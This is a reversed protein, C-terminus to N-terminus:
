VKLCDKIALIVVNSGRNMDANDAKSDGLLLVVQKVVGASIVIRCSLWFVKHYRADLSGLKHDTTHTKKNYSASQANDMNEMKPTQM